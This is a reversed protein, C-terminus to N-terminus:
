GFVKCMVCALSIIGVVALTKAAEGVIVMAICIAAIAIILTILISQKVKRGGKGITM